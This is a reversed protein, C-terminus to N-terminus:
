AIEVSPINMAREATEINIARRAIFHDVLDFEDRSVGDIETVIGNVIKISPQPDMPSSVNILGAEHWPLIFTEKNVPREALKEFRKSRM